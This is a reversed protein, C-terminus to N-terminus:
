SWANSTQARHQARRLSEERRLLPSEFSAHLRRVHGLCHIYTSVADAKIGGLAGTFTQLNKGAVGGSNQRALLLPLSDGVDLDVSGSGVGRIDHAMDGPSSARVAVAMLVLSTFHMSAPPSLHTLSQTLTGADGRKKTTGPWDPAILRTLIQHITGSRTKM